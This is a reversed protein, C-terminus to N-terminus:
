KAIAAERLTELEDIAAEGNYLYNSPQNYVINDFIESSLNIIEDPYIKDADKSYLQYNVDDSTVNQNVVIGGKDAVMQQVEDGTIYKLVEVAEEPYKTNSMVMYGFASGLLHNMEDNEAMGPWSVVGIEFKDGVKDAANASNGNVNCYIAVDGNVFASLADDASTTVAEKGGPYVYDNNYLDAVNEIAKVVREDKFSIEGAIFSDLEADDKWCQMLGNRVFWAAWDSQVSLPTKGSEKIKACIETFEDWSMEDPIEIGAEEFISKNIQFLPYSTNVPVALIGEDTTGVELASEGFSAKWAEDEELYKTLDMPIGTGEFKKMYTPWYGVVDIAQDAAYATKITQEATGEDWTKLTLDYEPFKEKVMNGLEEQWPDVPSQIMLTLEVKDAYAEQTTGTIATGMAMVGALGLSAAKMIKKM